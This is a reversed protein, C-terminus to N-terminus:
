SGWSLTLTSKENMLPNKYYRPASETFFTSENKINPTSEQNNRPILYMTIEHQFVTPINNTFRVSSGPLKMTLLTKSDILIRHIHVLDTM